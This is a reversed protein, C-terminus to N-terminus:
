RSPTVVTCSAGRGPVRPGVAARKPAARSGQQGWSPRAHSPHGQCCLLARLTLLRYSERIQGFVLDSLTPHPLPRPIYCTSYPTLRWAATRCAESIVVQISNNRTGKCSPHVLIHYARPCSVEWRQAFASRRRAAPAPAPSASWRRRRGAGSGSGTPWRGRRAHGGCRRRVQTDVVLRHEVRQVGEVGDPSPRGASSTRM